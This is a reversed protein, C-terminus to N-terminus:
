RARPKAIETLYDPLDTRELHPFRSGGHYDVRLAKVVDGNEVVIEMTGTTDKSARIADALADKTFRRGGAGLLKMAPALGAKASPSGPVVDVVTGDDKL